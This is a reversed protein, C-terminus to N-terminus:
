TETNNEVAAIRASASPLSSCLSTSTSTFRAQSYPSHSRRRRIFHPHDLRASCLTLSDIIFHSVYMWIPHTFHLSHILKKEEGEEDWRLLCFRHLIFHDRACWCWCYRVQLYEGTSFTLKYQGPTLEHATDLLTMCRGDSDTAGSGLATWSSSADRKSMAVVVGSAPRGQSIDLVHTTVPPKTRPAAASPSLQQEMQSRVNGARLSFSSMSRFSLCFRLRSIRISHSQSM